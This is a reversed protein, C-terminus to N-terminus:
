YENEHRKMGPVIKKKRKSPFSNSHLYSPSSFRIHWYLLFFLMKMKVIFVSWHKEKDKWRLRGALLLLLALFYKLIYYWKRLDSLRALALVSPCPCHVSAPNSKLIVLAFSNNLTHNTKSIFPVIQSLSTHFLAHKSTPRLYFVMVVLEEPDQRMMKDTPFKNESTALVQFKFLFPCSSKLWIVKERFYLCDKIVSSNM